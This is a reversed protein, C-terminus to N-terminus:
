VPDVVIQLGNQPAAPVTFGVIGKNIPTTTMPTPSGCGLALTAVALAGSFSAASALHRQM